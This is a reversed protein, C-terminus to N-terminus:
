LKTEGHPELSTELIQRIRMALDQHEEKEAFHLLAVKMFDPVKKLRWQKLANVANIRLAIIPSSLATLILEWGRGPYLALSGIIGNLANFWKNTEEVSFRELPNKTLEDLPFTIEAYAIVDKLNENKMTALVNWWVNNFHMWNSSDPDHVFNNLKRWHWSYLDIALIEALHSALSYEANTGGRVAAMIQDFWWTRLVIEDCRCICDHCLESTWGSKTADLSEEASVVEVYFKIRVAISLHKLDAARVSLLSLFRVLAEASGDCETVFSLDSSDTVQSFVECISDFLEEDIHGKELVSCLRGGVACEIGSSVGTVTGLPGKRLIWERLDENNEASQIIQRVVGLRGWGTVSEALEILISSSDHLMQSISFSSFFTFEEHLGVKMLLSIAEQVPPVTFELSNDKGESLLSLLCLGYKVPERDISHEVLCRGIRATRDRALHEYDIVRGVLGKAYTFASHKKMLKYMRSWSSPSPNNVAQELCDFLEMATDKSGHSAFCIPDCAGPLYLDGNPYDYIDEDPLAYFPSSISVYDDAILRDIHSLITKRGSFLGQRGM